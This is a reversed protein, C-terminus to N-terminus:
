TQTKNAEMEQRPGVTNAYIATDSWAHLQDTSMDPDQYTHRMETIPLLVFDTGLQGSIDLPSAVEIEKDEDALSLVICYLVLRCSVVRSLAIM